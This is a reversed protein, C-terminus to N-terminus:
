NDTCSTNRQGTGQQAARLRKMSRRPATPRQNTRPEKKLVNWQALNYIVLNNIAPM